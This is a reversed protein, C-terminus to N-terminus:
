TRSMEGGEEEMQKLLIEEKTMLYKKPSDVDKKVVSKSKAETAVTTDTTVKPNPADPADLLSQRISNNKNLM